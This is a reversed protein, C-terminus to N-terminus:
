KERWANIEKVAQQHTLFEGKDIEADSDELEKNYQEISIWSEKERLGYDLMHKLAQILSLDNVKQLREILVNKEAQIDM